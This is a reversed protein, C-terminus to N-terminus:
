FGYCDRGESEGEKRADLAGRLLCDVGHESGAPHEPAPFCSPQAPIRAIGRPHEDHSRNYSRSICRRGNRM